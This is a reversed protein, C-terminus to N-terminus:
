NNKDPNLAELIEGITPANKPDFNIRRDADCWLAVRAKMADANLKDIWTPPLSFKDFSSLIM